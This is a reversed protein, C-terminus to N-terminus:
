PSTHMACDVTMVKKARLAICTATPKKCPIWNNEESEFKDLPTDRTPNPWPFPKKHYLSLNQERIEVTDPQHERQFSCYEIEAVDIKYLSHQQLITTAHM